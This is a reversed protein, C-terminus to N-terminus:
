PRLANRAWYDRLTALIENEVPTANQPDPGYLPNMSNLNPDSAWPPWSPNWLWIAYNFGRAEFFDIEDRLFAAANPAWRQVGFETVALPRQRMRRFDELPTLFSELWARDFRDPQDDWTIDFEGPYPRHDEPSQHTYQFPAYQHVEYLIREGQPLEVFPLWPVSSWGMGGVLIPTDSDAARIAAILRPYLQNWDYLTGAYRPYFDAPDYLDLMVEDANPECMLSYGVLAPHGRYREATYGWMEAWANQAEADTWVSEVLLEPPFWVGAGDRYFTFDSRGPGTRFSLVVFLGAREAMTLMEDLNAQVGPDLRYPPLETFLGPHSLVVLNAGLAALQDFDAQTYPPGVHGEGLLDGDLDPVRVRQWLNAGRLQTGNTWLSWKDLTHSAPTATPQFTFTSAPSPTDPLPLTATTTPVAGPPAACAALLLTLFALM